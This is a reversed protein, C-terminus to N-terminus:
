LGFETKPRLFITNYPRQENPPFRDVIYNAFNANADLPIGPVSGGRVAEQAFQKVDGDASDLRIPDPLDGNQGGWTINLRAEDNGINDAM